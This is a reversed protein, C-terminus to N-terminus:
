IKEVFVVAKQVLQVKDGAKLYIIPKITKTIKMATSPEGIISADCDTRSDSYPENTPNQIFLGEEEFISYLRRFNREFGEAKGLGAIKLEIEYLQNLIHLNNM